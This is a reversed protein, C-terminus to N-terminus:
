SARTRTSRWTAPSRFWTARRPRSGTWTTRSPARHRACSASATGCRWAASTACTWGAMSRAPSSWWLTSGRASGSSTSPPCIGSRARSRSRSTRVVWRSRCANTASALWRPSSRPSTTTSHSRAPAWWSPDSALWGTRSRRPRRTRALLLDLIEVEHGEARLAAALYPLTVLLRPFEELPYSPNVLLIRM